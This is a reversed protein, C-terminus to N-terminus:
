FKLVRRCHSIDVGKCRLNLEGRWGLLLVMGLCLNLSIGTVVDLELVNSIQPGFRFTQGGIGANSLTGGVTLRLYDTLSLPTLGKAMTAHLVDIWLQEGGVDAYPGLATTTSVVIRGDLGGLSTMNVVIGNEVLSQGQVSHGHGRAAIDMPTPSGYMFQILGAIDSGNVPFFVGYPKEEIIRGYDTSALKITQSDNRLKASIPEPLPLAVALFPANQLILVCNFIILLFNNHAAM